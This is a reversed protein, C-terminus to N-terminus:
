FLSPKTTSEFGRGVYNNSGFARNWIRGFAGYLNPKAFEVIKRMDGPSFRVFNEIQCLNHAIAEYKRNTWRIRAANDTVQRLSLNGLLSGTVTYDRKNSKIIWNRNSKRIKHKERAIEVYRRRAKQSRESGGRMMTAKAIAWGKALPKAPVDNPNIASTTRAKWVDLAYQGIRAMEQQPATLTPLALKRKVYISVWRGGYSDRTGFTPQVGM